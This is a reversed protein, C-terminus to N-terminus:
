GLWKKKDYGKFFYGHIILIIFVIVALILAYM